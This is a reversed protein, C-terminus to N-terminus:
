INWTRYSNAEHTRKDLTYTAINDRQKQPTMAPKLHPFVYTDQSLEHQGWKAIIRKSDDKLAIRIPETNSRRSRITKARNFVIFDDQINKYTLLCLDKVNLGNCLYIFIWYDRCMDNVSG